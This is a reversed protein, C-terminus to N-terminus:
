ADTKEAVASWWDAVVMVVATDEAVVSPDVARRLRTSSADRM